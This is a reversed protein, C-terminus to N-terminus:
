QAPPPQNAEAPKQGTALNIKDQNPKLAIDKFFTPEDGPHMIAECDGVCVYSQLAGAKFLSVNNHGGFRVDVEFNVLQEGQEDLIIVNTTGFGRGHLFVKQGQITADAISPNGIVVTGPPRALDIIQSQDSYVVLPQAASAQGAALALTMGLLLGTLSSKITM